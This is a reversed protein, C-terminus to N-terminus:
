EERERTELDQRVRDVEVEVINMELPVDFGMHVAQAVIETAGSRSGATYARWLATLVKAHTDLDFDELDLDVHDLIASLEQAAQERLIRPDTPM